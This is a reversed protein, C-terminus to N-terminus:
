VDALLLQLGGGTDLLRLLPPPQDAAAAAANLNALGVDLDAAVDKPVNELGRTDGRFLYWVDFGLGVGYSNLLAIWARGAAFAGELITCGGVWELAPASVVQYKVAVGAGARGATGHQQAGGGGVTAAAAAARVVRGADAGHGLTEHEVGAGALGLRDNDLPRHFVAVAAVPPRWEGAGADTRRAEVDNRGGEGVGVEVRFVTLQHRGSERCVKEVIDEVLVWYEM